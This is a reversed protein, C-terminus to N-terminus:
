LVAGVGKESGRPWPKFLSKRRKSLSRLCTEEGRQAQAKEKTPSQTWNLCGGVCVGTNLLGSAGRFAWGM